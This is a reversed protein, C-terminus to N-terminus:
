VYLLGCGGLKNSHSARSIFKLYFHIFLDWAWEAYSIEKKPRSSRRHKPSNIQDNTSGDPLHGDTTTNMNMCGTTDRNKNMHGGKCPRIQHRNRMQRGGGALEIHYSRGNDRKGIITGKSSWARTKPDQVVVQCGVELQELEVASWDHHKKKSEPRM